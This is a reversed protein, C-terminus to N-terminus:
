PERVAQRMLAEHAMTAQQHPSVQEELDVEEVRRRHAEMLDLRFM